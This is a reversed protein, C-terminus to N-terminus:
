RVFVSAISCVTKRLRPDPRIRSGHSAANASVVLVLHLGVPQRLQRQPEFLRVALPHLSRQACRAEICMSNITDESRARPFHDGGPLAGAPQRRSAKEAAARLM